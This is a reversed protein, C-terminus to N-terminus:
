VETEVTESIEYIEVSKPKRALDTLDLAYQACFGEFEMLLTNPVRVRFSKGASQGAKRGRKSPVGRARIFANVADEHLYEIIQVGDFSVRKIAGNATFIPSTRMEKRLTQVARGSTYGIREIADRITLWPAGLSLMEVATNESTESTQESKRAKAM